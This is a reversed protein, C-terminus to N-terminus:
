GSRRASLKRTARWGSLVAVIGTLPNWRRKASATAWVPGIACDSVMSLSVM